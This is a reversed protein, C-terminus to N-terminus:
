RVDRREDLQLALGKGPEKERSEDPQAAWTVHKAGPGHCAECSVNIESWTTAFTRDAPSYSKQLHTSHCEACMSNWNQSAQTWHLEDAPTIKFNM